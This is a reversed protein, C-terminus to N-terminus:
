EFLGTIPHMVIVRSELDVRVIFEDVAPVLVERDGTNVVWVDNAPTSLVDILTGLPRGAEDEVALGEIQHPYYSGMSLPAAEAVSISLLEGRANEVDERLPLEEFRVMTRDGSDRVEAITLPRVEANPDGLGLRSGPRFRDRADTLREVLAFGALGHAKVIRGVVLRTPHAPKV